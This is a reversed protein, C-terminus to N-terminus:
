TIVERAFPPPFISAYTKTKKSKDCKKKKQM